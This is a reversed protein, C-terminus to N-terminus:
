LGGDDYDDKALCNEREIRKGACYLWRDLYFSGEVNKNERKANTRPRLSWPKGNREGQGSGPFSFSSKSSELGNSGGEEWALCAVDKIRRIPCIPPFLCGPFICATIIQFTYHLIINQETKNRAVLLIKKFFGWPSCSLKHM